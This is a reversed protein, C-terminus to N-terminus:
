IARNIEEAGAVDGGGIVGADRGTCAKALAGCREGPTCGAACLLVVDIEIVQEDGRHRGILEFDGARERTAKMAPLDDGAGAALEGCACAPSEGDGGGRGGSM